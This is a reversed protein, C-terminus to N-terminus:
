VVTRIGFKVVMTNKGTQADTDVDRMNNVNLVGASLLGGAIAPLVFGLEFRGTHLYYTGLVGVLGFFVFVYLDGLGTIVEYLM